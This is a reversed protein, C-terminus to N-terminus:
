LQMATRELHLIVGRSKLAGQVAQVLASQDAAEARLTDVTARLQQEPDETDSPEDLDASEELSEFVNPHTSGTEHYLRQELEPGLAHDFVLDEMVRM